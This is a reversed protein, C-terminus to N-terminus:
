NRGIPFSLCRPPTDNIRGWDSGPALLPLFFLKAKGKEQLGCFVEPSSLLAEWVWM